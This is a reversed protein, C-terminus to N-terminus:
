SPSEHARRSRSVVTQLSSASRQPGPARWDSVAKRAPSSTWTWAPLLPGAAPVSCTDIRTAGGAPFSAHAAAVTM